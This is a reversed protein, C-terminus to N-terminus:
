KTNTELQIKVTHKVEQPYSPLWVGIVMGTASIHLCKGVAGKTLTLSDQIALKAFLM